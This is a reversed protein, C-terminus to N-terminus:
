LDSHEYPPRHHRMPSRERHARNPCPAPSRERQHYAYTCHEVPAKPAQPAQLHDYDAPPYYASEHLRGGLAFGELFARSALPDNLVPVSPGDSRGFLSRIRDMLFKLEERRGFGSGYESTSRYDYEAPDTIYGRGFGPDYGVYSQGHSLTPTSPTTTIVGASKPCGIPGARPGYTSRVPEPMPGRESRSRMDDSKAAAYRAKEHARTSPSLCPMKRVRAVAQKALDYKAQTATRFSRSSRMIIGNLDVSYKFEGNETIHETFSPNFSRKQCEKSLATTPPTRWGSGINARATSPPATTAGRGTRNVHATGFASTNTTTTTPRPQAAPPLQSKNDSKDITALNAGPTAKHLTFPPTVVTSHEPSYHLSTNYTAKLPAITPLPDKKDRFLASDRSAQIIQRFRDQGSGKQPSPGPRSFLGSPKKSAQTTSSAFSSNSSEVSSVAAAPTPITPTARREEKGTSGVETTDMVAM